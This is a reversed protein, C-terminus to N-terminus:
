SIFGKSLSPLVISRHIRTMYYVLIINNYNPHIFLLSLDDQLVAAIQRIVGIDGDSLDDHRHTYLFDCQGVIPTSDSSLFNEVIIRM